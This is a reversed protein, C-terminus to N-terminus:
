YPLIMMLDEFGFPEGYRGAITKQVGQGVHMVISIRGVVDSGAVVPDRSWSAV